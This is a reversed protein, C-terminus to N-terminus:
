RSVSAVLKRGRGVAVRRHRRVYFRLVAARAQRRQAPTLEAERVAALLERCQLLSAARRQWSRLGLLHTLQAGRIRDWHRHALIEPIHAWPGALAMKAAFVEDGRLMNKYPVLTMLERRFTGYLPDLLLYSETLLRLMESFRTVADDSSLITGDYHMSRTQGDRETYKMQTTVLILRPDDAFAGACRSAYNPAIEDDDGIWRFFTGRAHGKVWQFNSALGIDHPQRFYSVRDDAAALERCVAETSDTSANDSIILELNEYDQRLVSRAVDEITKEGNRVPLGISILQNTAM